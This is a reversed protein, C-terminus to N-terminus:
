TGADSSAASAPSGDDVDGHSYSNDVSGHRDGDESASESALVWEPILFDRVEEIETPVRTGFATVHRQTKRATPASSQRIAAVMLM